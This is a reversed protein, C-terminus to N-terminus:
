PVAERGATSDGTVQGQLLSPCVESCFEVLGPKAVSVTLAMTSPTMWPRLAATALVVASSMAAAAM